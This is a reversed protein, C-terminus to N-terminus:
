LLNLCGCLKEFRQAVIEIMVNQQLSSRENEINLIFSPRLLEM